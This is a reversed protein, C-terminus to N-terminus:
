CPTSTTAGTSTCVVRWEEATLKVEGGDEVRDSYALRPVRELSGLQEFILEWEDIRRCGEMIVSEVNMEVLIDEDAVTEDAEFEFDGDTWSFFNFTVDEIQDRVAQELTERDIYGRM